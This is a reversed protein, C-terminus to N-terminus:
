EMTKLVTRLARQYSSHSIDHTAYRVWKLKARSGFSAKLANAGWKCQYWDKTGYMLTVHRATVTNMSAISLRQFASVRRTGMDEIKKATYWKLQESFYSSPSAAILRRVNQRQAIRIAALAGFSFGVLTDIIGDAVQAEAQEVWDDLSTGDWNIAAAVVRYGHDELLTTLEKYGKEDPKDDFGPIVLALPKLLAHMEM